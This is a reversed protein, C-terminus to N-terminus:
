DHFVLGDYNEKIFECRDVYAEEPTSFGWKQHRKGKYIVIWYYPAKGTAKYKVTGNRPKTKYVGKPLGEEKTTHKRRNQSQVTSDVWRCNSPEYGKTSDIRDITLKEKYGNNISWDYFSQFDEWESCLTIGEYCKNKGTPNNLRYKINCWVGYLKTNTMGHTESHHKKDTKPVTINTM